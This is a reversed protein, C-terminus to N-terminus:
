SNYIRVSTRIAQRCLPCKPSSDREVSLACRQCCALHGCPVFASRRRRMLCIVCLQGDPIDETGDDDQVQTSDDTEDIEVSRAQLDQRRQRWEKWRRWNKFSSYGLIALSASGFIITCWFLISSKFTLHQVMDDKSKETLFYPLDKFAKIQPNGEQLSCVGIATIEKGLPLIKEEDLVGVPYPHGFIAQLFTLPTVSVPELHSYVTTLPLPQDSGELNVSVYEPHPWLSTGVLVFPVSRLSTQKPTRLSKRRGIFPLRKFDSTIGALISWDDYVYSLTRQLAVGTEGSADHSIVNPRLTQWSGNLFSKAQVFGRVVVLNESTNDLLSRLDSIPVSKAHTIKHLATSSSVYNYYAQVAIYGIAIGAFAGDNSLGLRALVSLATDSLSM